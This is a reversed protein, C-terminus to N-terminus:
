KQFCGEAAGTRSSPTPILAPKKLTNKNTLLCRGTLVKEFFM